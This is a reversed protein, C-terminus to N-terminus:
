PALYAETDALCFYPSDIAFDRLIKLHGAGIILLVRDRGHATVRNLNTFIRLNREYWNSVEDTRSYIGLGGSPLLMKMYTAQGQRIEDPDNLWALYEAITSELLRQQEETPEPLEVGAEGDPAEEEAERARAENRATVAEWDIEDSRWGNMWMPFDVPYVTEHGLREALPLAIQDIESRGLEYDGAMYARYRDPWTDSGYKSEVAVLTPQFRELRDLLVAIEAQRRDSRVDDAEVNYSDLGPNAMHYTGLILIPSSESSCNEELLATDQASLPVAGGALLAITITCFRVPIFRPRPV